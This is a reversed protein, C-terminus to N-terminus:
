GLMKEKKVGCLSARLCAVGGGRGRCKLGRGGGPGGGNRMAVVTLYPIGV